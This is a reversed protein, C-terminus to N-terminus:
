KTSSRVSNICTVASNAAPPFCQRCTVLTGPSVNLQSGCQKRAARGCLAPATRKAQATRFLAAVGASNM